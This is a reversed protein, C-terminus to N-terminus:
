NGDPSIQIDVQGKGEKQPIDEANSRTPKRTKQSKKAGGDRKNEFQRSGGSLSESVKAAHIEPRLPQPGRVLRHLSCPTWLDANGAQIPDATPLRCVIVSANDEGGNWISLSLLREVLSAPSSASTVVRSLTDNHIRHIGDSTIIVTDGVSAEVEFIHPQVEDGMGVFQLLENRVDSPVAIGQKRLQGALNDDQTIQELEKNVRRIWV